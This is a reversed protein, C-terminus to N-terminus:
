QTVEYAIHYAVIILNFFCAKFDPGYNLRGHYELCLFSPTIYKNKTLFRDPHKRVLKFKFFFLFLIISIFYFIYDHRNNTQVCLPINGSKWSLLQM